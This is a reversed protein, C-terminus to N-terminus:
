IEMLIRWFEVYENGDIIRGKRIQYLFKDKNIEVSITSNNKIVQFDNFENQSKVSLRGGMDYIAIQGDDSLITKVGFLGLSESPFLKVVFFVLFISKM